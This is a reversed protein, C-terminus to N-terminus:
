LTSAGVLSSGATPPCLSVSARRPRQIRSSPGPIRRPHRVVQEVDGVSVSFVDGCKEPRLHPPDTAVLPM